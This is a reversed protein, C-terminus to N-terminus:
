TGTYRPKVSRRNRYRDLYQVGAIPRGPGDMLTVLHYGAVLIDALEAGSSGPDPPGEAEEATDGQSPGDGELRVAM